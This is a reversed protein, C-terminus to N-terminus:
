PEAGPKLANGEDQWEQWGGQYRFAKTYGLEVAKKVGVLSKGCLPNGCYIVLKADKDAVVDTLAKGNDILKGDKDAILEIPINIAGPIHGGPHDTDDGTYWAVPLVDVLFDKGSDFPFKADHWAKFGDYENVLYDHKEDVWEGTGWEYRFVSTYGLEVATQAFTLDNGYGFCYAVIKTDKDAVADALAKGDGVLAGNKDVLTDLPINIANQIHGASWDAAPRVDILVFEEGADLAAKLEEYTMDQVETGEAGSDGCANLGAACVWGIVVVTVAALRAEM